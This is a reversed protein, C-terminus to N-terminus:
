YFLAVSGRPYTPDSWTLMMSGDKINREPMDHDCVGEPLEIFNVPAPQDPDTHGVFNHKIDLFRQLIV